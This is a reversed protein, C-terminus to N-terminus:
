INNIYKNVINVFSLRPNASNRKNKILTLCDEVNINNKKCLYAMALSVSRSKGSQCHFLIKSHNPMEILIPIIFDLIDFLYEADSDHDYIGIEYRNEIKRICRHELKNNYHPNIYALNIIIDFPEYSSHLEGIAVNDTIWTIYQM